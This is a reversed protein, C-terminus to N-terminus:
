KSYLTMPINCYTSYHRTGTNPHSSFSLYVQFSSVKCCYSMIDNNHWHGVAIYDIHVAKLYWESTELILLGSAGLLANCSLEQRPLPKRKAETSTMILLNQMAQCQSVQLVMKEIWFRGAQSTYDLSIALLGGNRCCIHLPHEYSSSKSSVM